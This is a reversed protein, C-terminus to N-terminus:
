REEPGPELDAFYDMLMRHVFVYGGGVKRLFIRETAYDLFSVLNWPLFGELCLIFRLSFHQIVAFGGFLLGLIMGFTLGTALGFKLGNILCIIIGFILSCILSFELANKASYKIGQNPVTSMSMKTIRMGGELVGTLGIILLGFLGFITWWILRFNLGYAPVEILECIPRDTFNISPEEVLVLILLLIMVIPYMKLIPKLVRLGEEWSWKLVEAPEIKCDYRVFDREFLLVFLMPMLCFYGLEILDLILAVFGLILGISGLILAM